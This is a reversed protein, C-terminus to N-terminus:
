CPDDRDKEKDRPSSREVIEKSPLRVCAGNVMTPTENPCVYRGLVDLVLGSGAAAPAALTLSALMVMVLLRM